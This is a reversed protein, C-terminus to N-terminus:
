APEAREELLLTVVAVVAAQPLSQGCSEWAAAPSVPHFIGERMVPLMGARPGAELGPRGNKIRDDHSTIGRGGAPM